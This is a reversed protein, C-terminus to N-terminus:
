GVAATILAPLSLTTTRRDLLLCVCRALLCVINVIDHQAAIHPCTRELASDAPCWTTTSSGQRHCTRPWHECLFACAAPMPGLVCWSIYALSM